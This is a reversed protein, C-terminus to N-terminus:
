EHDGWFQYNAKSERMHGNKVIAAGLVGMDINLENIAYYLLANTDKPFCNGGFGFEGDPGPVMLHSSGMRPDTDLMETFEDWTSEAGSEKHVRYMENMFVVKTAYYANLAYKVLSATVIDTKFVPVPKCQSYDKYIQELQCCDDLGGGIVHFFPNKFDREANREVLFEPNYVVRLDTYEEAIDKLHKPTITSKIVVLGDFVHKRLEDLVDYVISPDVDNSLLPKAMSNGSMPTPLCLFVVDVENTQLERITCSEESSLKPDVHFQV